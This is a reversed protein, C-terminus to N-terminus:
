PAEKGTLLWEVSLGLVDCMEEICEIGPLTGKSWKQVKQQDWGLTKYVTSVNDKLVSIIRQRIEEKKEITKKM